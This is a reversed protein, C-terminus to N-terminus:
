SLRNAIYSWRGGALVAIARQAWPRALADFAPLGVHEEQRHADWPDAAFQEHQRVSSFWGEAWDGPRRDAM